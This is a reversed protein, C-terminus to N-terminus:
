FSISIALRRAKPRTQKHLDYLPMLIVSLSNWLWNFVGHLPNLKSLCCGKKKKAYKPMAAQVTWYNDPFNDCKLLQRLINIFNGDRPVDETAGGLIFHKRKGMVDIQGGEM